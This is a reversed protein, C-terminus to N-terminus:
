EVVYDCVLRVASGRFRDVNAWNFYTDSFRRCQAKGSSTSVTSSWYFGEPRTDDTDTYKIAWQDNNQIIRTGTVPLFVAGASEFEGWQVTNLENDSFQSSSALTTLSVDESEIWYDPLLIVGKIGCVTARAWKNNRIDSTGFLYAWESITLTRWLDPANGGNSISCHVGWDNQTGEVVAPYATNDASLLIPTYSSNGSTGWGFLDIWGTYSNEYISTIESNSKNSTFVHDYQNNPFKWTNSSPQYQLNGKSFWVQKGDSNVTFLGKLSGEPASTVFNLTIDTLDVITYKNCAIQLSGNQLTKTCVSGDDAFIKIELSSYTGNPLAIYFDRANNISQPSPFNLKVTKRTDSVSEYATLSRNDNSFNNVTFSGNIASNTTVRIGIIETNDKQLSLRMLGCLNKFQLHQDNSEAYMPFGILNGDADTNQTDSLKVRLTTTTGTNNISLSSYISSPCFAHYTGSYAADDTVDNSTIYSFTARNSVISSARYKGYKLTSGTTGQRRYVRIEDNALWSFTHTTGDFVTKCDKNTYGEMTASFTGGALEEKQCSTFAATMSM